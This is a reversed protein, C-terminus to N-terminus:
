STTFAEFTADHALEVVSPGYTGPEVVRLILCFRKRLGYTRMLRTHNRQLYRAAARNSVSTQGCILFAPKDDRERQIKALAVYEARGMEVPFRREGVSITVGEPDDEYLAHRLNPVASRLHAATRHNADPGGICFEAKDAAGQYVDDHFVVEPRARCDGLVTSLELLAAADNRHVSRDRNSSAHRPVVVLCEDGGTLGFFVQMRRTKRLALAKTVLWVASGTIVSAIINLSVNWADGSM